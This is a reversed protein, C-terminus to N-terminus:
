YSWGDTPLKINPGSDPLFVAPYQPITSPGALANTPHLAPPREKLSLQLLEDNSM